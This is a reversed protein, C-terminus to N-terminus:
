KTVGELKALLLASMNWDLEQAFMSFFREKRSTQNHIAQQQVRIGYESITATDGPDLIRSFIGKSTLPYNKAFYEDSINRLKINSTASDVARNYGIRPNKSLANNIKNPNKLPTFGRDAPFGRLLNYIIIEEASHHANKKWQQKVALYQEKTIIHKM